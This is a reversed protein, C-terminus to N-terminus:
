SGVPTLRRIAMVFLLLAGMAAATFLPPVALAGLLVGVLSLLCGALVVGVASVRGGLFECGGIVVAAITMLTYNDGAGADGSTAIGAFMLGAITACLAAVAYAAVQIWTTNWGSDKLASPNSGYARIRTGLRTRSILFHGAAGIVVLQLVPAPVFPVTMKPLLSLWAPTAGGVEPLITNALGGFVFSMALTAVLAPINRTAIIWALLPYLAMVGVLLMWGVIPKTHLSTASIVGVLGIYAGIGLDIQGLAVVVMQALGALALIPALSLILQVGFASTLAGLRAQLIALVIVLGVLAVLWPRRLARSLLGGGATAGSADQEAEQSTFSARLIKETTIDGKGYEETVRGETMVYARDFHAIEADESSYWLVGRGEAAAGRILRYMDTKTALDVGRTPDNLLLVEADTALGRAFLVKQQMGGSLNGIPRTAVGRDLGLRDFWALAGTSLARRNLWRALGGRAIGGITLNDVANWLPFIGERRRDGTIYAAKVDRGHTGEASGVKRDAVSRLLEEQGSGQLGCLGVVEGRAVRVVPGHGGPDRVELLVNGVEVDVDPQESAATARAAQGLMLALLQETTTDATAVDGVVRGERMVICRDTLQHLEKMKHTILIVIVGSAQLRRILSRLEEVHEAGLASTPEDLILVKLGPSSAARAIEVMQKQAPQLEGIQVGLPVGHQSGFGDCLANAAAAQVEGSWRLGSRSAKGHELYFNETVTLSDCLSLEQHVIRIGADHARAPNYGSENVVVGDLQIQGADPIVEGALVRMLTSKGAGNGGVIATVAGSDLSLSVDAVARTPGYVKEAGTVDLKTLRDTATDVPGAREDDNVRIATV